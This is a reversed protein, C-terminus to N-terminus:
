LCISSLADIMSLDAAYPKSRYKPFPINKMSFAYFPRLNFNFQYISYFVLSWVTSSTFLKLSSLSLSVKFFTREQIQVSFFFSIFLGCFCFVWRM